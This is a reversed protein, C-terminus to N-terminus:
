SRVLTDRATNALQRRNTVGLKGFVHTVHSKVTGTSVFLRAAIEANSLGDVILEVVRHETPTLSDWGTAPRNRPGHGRLLYEVLEDREASSGESWLSAVPATGLVEELARRAGDLDARDVVSLAYGTREREAAAKGLLRGAVEHRGYEAGVVALMEMFDVALVAMDMRHAAALGKVALQWATQRDGRRRALSVRARIVWPNGEAGSLRRAEALWREALVLEDSRVVVEALLARDTVARSAPAHASRRPTVGYM